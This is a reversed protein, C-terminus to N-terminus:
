TRFGARRSIKDRSIRKNRWLSLAYTVSPLVRLKRSSEAYWRKRMQFCSIVSLEIRQATAVASSNESKRMNFEIFQSLFLQVRGRALAHYIKYTKKKREVCVCRCTNYVVGIFRWNYWVAQKKKRTTVKLAVRKNDRFHCTAAIATM